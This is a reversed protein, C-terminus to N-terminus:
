FSVKKSAIDDPSTVLPLTEKPGLGNLSKITSKNDHASVDSALFKAARGYQGKCCLMKAKKIM